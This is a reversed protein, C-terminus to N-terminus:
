IHMFVVFCLFVTLFVCESNLRFQIFQGDSKNEMDHVERVRM